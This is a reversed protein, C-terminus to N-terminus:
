KKILAALKRGFDACKPLEGETIPGKMGSVQISLGPVVLALGHVREAIRAEMPKVGKEFDTKLYTDFVAGRKGILDLSGLRDIFKMVARSPAGFHVPAGVLIVDYDALAGFDVDKINTVIAEIGETGKMGEAIKEAVLQTNGYKTDDAIIVKM